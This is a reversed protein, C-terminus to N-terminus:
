SRGGEAGGLGPPEAYAYIPAPEGDLVALAPPFPGVRAVRDGYNGDITTIEGGLVSEVIGVHESPPPGGATSSPTAPPRPTAGPPLVRGGHETVWGYFSGSYAYPATGERWGSAPTSGSGLRRLARVM